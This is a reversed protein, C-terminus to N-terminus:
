NQLLKRILAFRPDAEVDHHKGSVRAAHIDQLIGLAHGAATVANQPYDSCVEEVVASLESVEPMGYTRGTGKLKHFSERLDSPNGAQIQERISVIKKPLSSLYDQHLTKLLEDFNV